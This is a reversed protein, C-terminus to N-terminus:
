HKGFVALHHVLRHVPVSAKMSLNEATVADEGAVSMTIECLNDSSVNDDGDLVKVDFEEVNNLALECTASNTLDEKDDEFVILEPDQVAAAM